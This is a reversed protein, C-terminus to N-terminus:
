SSLLTMSDFLFQFSTYANKKFSDFTMNSLIAYQTYHHMMLAYILDLFEVKNFDIPLYNSDILEDLLKNLQEIWLNDIEKLQIFIEPNKNTQYVAGYLIRLWEKNINSTKLLYEDLFYLLYDKATNFATINKTLSLKDNVLIERYIEILLAEKSSFHNYITGEGVGAAISIAKTTTMEFGLELFTKRAANIIKDRYYKKQEERKAM